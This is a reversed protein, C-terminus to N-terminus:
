DVQFPVDIPSSGVKNSIYLWYSGKDVKPVLFKIENMSWSTVKCSKPKPNPAAQSMLYVKGKKGGFFTGSVTVDTGPSGSAPSSPQSIYPNRIVFPDTVSNFIRILSAETQQAM